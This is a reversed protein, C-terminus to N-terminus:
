RPGAGDATFVYNRHASAPPEQLRERLSHRAAGLFAELEELPIARTRAIQVRDSRERRREVSADAARVPPM